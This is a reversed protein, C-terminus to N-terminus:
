RPHGSWAPDAPYSSSRYSPCSGRPRLPSIARPVFRSSDNGWSQRVEPDALKKELGSAQGPFATGTVLFPWIAAAGVTATLLTREDERVEGFLALTAWGFIAKLVSGLSRRLM